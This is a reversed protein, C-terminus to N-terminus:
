GRCSGCGRGENLEPLDDDDTSFSSGCGCSKTANPNNVKFGAGLPMEIYDIVAGDVYKSEKLTTMINVGNSTFVIEDIGLDDIETLGLAYQLGSCGGGIVRLELHANKLEQAEIVDKVMDAAKDTITIM